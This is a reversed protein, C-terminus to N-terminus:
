PRKGFLTMYEIPQNCHLIESKPHPSLIALTSTFHGNQLCVSGTFFVTISFTTMLTVATLGAFADELEIIGIAGAVRTHFSKAIFLAPIRSVARANCM